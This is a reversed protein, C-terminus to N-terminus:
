TGKTLLRLAKLHLPDGIRARSVVFLNAEHANKFQTEGWYPLIQIQCRQQAAGYVYELTWGQAAAYADEQATLLDNM